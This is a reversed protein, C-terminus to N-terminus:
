ALYRRELHTRFPAVELPRGTARILIDRTSLSSALAHVNPRLWGLLPTFDGRSLAEPIEPVAALAAEFLQAATLAGLTYTPFYGLAGDYWHIDQLCGLRDEPVPVGMLRAFGENWADPLDDAELTGEIMARELRYRLIVHLPYTVEDADVRIFGREVRIARAAFAADSWAPDSGGGAPGGKPGFAERMLPAAFRTFEASRSALMEVLLSQSEHLSMGRARGVPQDRWAAPLGREYLGHGTEHLVGMLATLFDAEDYRTTIRVDSPTGGCFPHASVDLRGHDFDFGLAVMLRRGLREQVAPDFPGTLPPPAAGQHDLVRPLLDPLFSEIDAFLRDIEASRGEPEYQDLLADYSTVGLAEAKAAAVERTLALLHAFKPRVAAFDSAPRAERWTQECHSAALSLAEVLRGPVATAHAHLRRMERLNAAQWDDLRDEAVDALLVAMDPATMLDHSLGSLAATQAGRDAAAGRPMMVASDWNLLGITDDLAQIRRFRDELAAYAPCASPRDRRTM